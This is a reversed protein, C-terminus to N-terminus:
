SSAAAEQAGGEEKGDRKGHQRQKRYEMAKQFRSSVDDADVKRNTRRLRLIAAASPGGTPGSPAKSTSASSASQISTSSAASSPASSSSPSSDAAADAATSQQEEERKLQRMERMIEDADSGSFTSLSRMPAASLPADFSLRPLASAHIATTRPHHVSWARRLLALPSSYSTSRMSLSARMSCWRTSPCSLASPAPLLLASSRQESAATTSGLWPAHTYVATHALTCRQTTSHHAADILSSQATHGHDATVLSRVMSGPDGMVREERKGKREDDREEGSGWGVCCGCHVCM